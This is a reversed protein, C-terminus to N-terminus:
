KGGRNWGRLCDHRFRTAGLEGGNAGLLVGLDHVDIPVEDLAFRITLYAENKKVLHDNVCSIGIPALLDLRGLGSCVM